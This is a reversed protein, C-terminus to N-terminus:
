TPYVTQSVLLYFIQLRHLYLIEQTRLYHTHTDHPPSINADHVPLVKTQPPLTHTVCPPLINTDHVPLINTQPPLTHTVSFTSGTNELLFLDTPCSDKYFGGGTPSPMTSLRTERKAGREYSPLTAVNKHALIALHGNNHTALSSVETSIM